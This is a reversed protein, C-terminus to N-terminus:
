PLMDVAKELLRNLDKIHGLIHFVSVQLEVMCDIFDDESLEESQVLANYSKQFHPLEGAIDSLHLSIMSTKNEKLTPLHKKIVNILQHLEDVSSKATSQKSTIM